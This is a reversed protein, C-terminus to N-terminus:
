PKGKAGGERVTGGIAGGVAGGGQVGGEPSSDGGIGSGSGSTKSKVRITKTEYWTKTSRTDFTDDLSGVDVIKASRGAAFSRIDQASLAGDNGSAKDILEFNNLIYSVKEQEEKKMGGKTMRANLESVTLDDKKDVNASNYAADLKTGSLGNLVKREQIITAKQTQLAALDKVTINQGDAAILERNNLLTTAVKALKKDKGGAAQALEERDLKGDANIIDLQGFQKLSESVFDGQTTIVKERKVLRKQVEDQMSNSFPQSEMNTLAYNSNYLDSSKAETFERNAM